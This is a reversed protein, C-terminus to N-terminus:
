KVSRNRCRELDKEGDSTPGGSTPLRGLIATLGAAIAARSTLLPAIIPPLQPSAKAQVLRTM